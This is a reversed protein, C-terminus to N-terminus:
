SRDPIARTPNPATTPVPSPEVLYNPFLPRAPTRQEEILRRAVESEAPDVSAYRGDPLRFIARRTTPDTGIFAAGDIRTPPPEKPPSDGRVRAERPDDGHARAELVAGIAQDVQRTGWADRRAEWEAIQAEGRARAEPDPAAAPVPARAEYEAIARAGAALAPSLASASGVPTAPRVAARARAALEPASDLYFEIPAGGTHIIGFGPRSPHLTVRLDDAAVSPAAPTVSPPEAPAERPDPLDVPASRAITVDRQGSGAQDGSQYLTYTRSQRMTAGTPDGLARAGGGPAARDAYLREQETHIRQAAATAAEPTAYVGLHRGTRLYTEWAEEDDMIRGDDSVTPVLVEGAQTGFSVSRVTSITGDPNPVVPRSGLDINGPLRIGPDSGAQQAVPAATTTAQRASDDIARQGTGPAPGVLASTTGDGLGRDITRTADRVISAARQADSQAPPVTVRVAPSGAALPSSSQSAALGRRRATEQQIPTRADAAQRPQATQQQEGSVAGRPITGADGALSGTVPTARPIGATSGRPAAGALREEGADRTADEAIRRAREREEDTLDAM